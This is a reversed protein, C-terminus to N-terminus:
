QDPHDPNFVITHRDAMLDSAYGVPLIRLLVNDLAVAGVRVKDVQPELQGGAARLDGRVPDHVQAAHVIWVRMPRHALASRAESRILAARPTFLNRDTSGRIRWPHPTLKRWRRVHRRM